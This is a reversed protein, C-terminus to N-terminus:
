SVSSIGKVLLKKASFFHNIGIINAKNLRRIENM